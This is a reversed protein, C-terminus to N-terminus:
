KMDGESKNFILVPKEFTKEDMFIFSENVEKYEFLKKFINIQEGDPYGSNNNSRHYHMPIALRPKIVDLIQKLEQASITYFGNIPALVIDLGQLKTMVEKSPICGLDGFHAIKYGGISFIHIKNRGRHAGEHHDHPVDITEMNLFAETPILNVYQIANHDSHQHSCLCYNADVMPMQLNPVGNYPDFVVSLKDSAFKFCAHGYNTIKLMEYINYCIRVM